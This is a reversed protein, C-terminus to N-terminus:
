SHMPPFMEGSLRARCRSLHVLMFRGGSCLRSQRSFISRCRPTMHGATWKISHTRFDGSSVSFCSNLEATASFCRSAWHSEKDCCASVHASPRCKSITCAALSELNCVLFMNIRWSPLFTTGRKEAIVNYIWYSINLTDKELKSWAVRM